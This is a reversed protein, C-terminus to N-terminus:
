NPPLKLVKDPEISIGYNALIKKDFSFNMLIHGVNTFRFSKKKTAGVVVNGFDCCYNAITINDLNVITGGIGLTAGGTLAGGLTSKQDDAGEVISEKNLGAAKGSPIPPSLKKSFGGKPTKLTGDGALTSAAGALNTANLTANLGVGAGFQPSTAFM